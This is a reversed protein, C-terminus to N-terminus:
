IKNGSFIIHRDCSTSWGINVPIRGYFVSIYVIIFIKFIFSVSTVYIQWFAASSAVNYLEDVGDALKGLKLKKILYL